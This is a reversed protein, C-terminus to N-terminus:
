STITILSITAAIAIPTSPMTIFNIEMKIISFFTTTSYIKLLHKKFYTDNKRYM